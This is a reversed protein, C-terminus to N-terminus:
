DKQLDTVGFDQNLEHYGVWRGEDYGRNYAEEIEAKLKDVIELHDQWKVYEGTPTEYIGSVLLKTPRYRKIEMNGRVLRMGMPMDMLTAM